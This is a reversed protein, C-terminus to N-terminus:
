GTPSDAYATKWGWMGSGYGRKMVREKLDPPLPHGPASYPLLAVANRWIELETELFDSGDSLREELRRRDDGQLAGLAFLPLDDTFREDVM